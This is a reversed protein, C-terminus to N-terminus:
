NDNSENIIDFFIKSVNSDSPVGYFTANSLTNYPDSKRYLYLDMIYDTNMSFYKCSNYSIIGSNSIETCCFNNGENSHINKCQIEVFYDPPCISYYGDQQFDNIYIRLQFLPTYEDGDRSLLIDIGGFDDGGILKIPQTVYLKYDEHFFICYFTDQNNPFFEISTKGQPNFTYIIGDSLYDLIIVKSPSVKDGELMEVEEHKKIDSYIYGATEYFWFIVRNNEIIKIDEDLYEGKLQQILDWNQKILLEEKSPRNNDDTTQETSSNQPDIASSIEQISNKDTKDDNDSNITEPNNKNNGFLSIDDFVSIGLISCIGVIIAVWIYIKEYWPKNDKM